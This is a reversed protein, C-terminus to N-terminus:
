LVTVREVRQKFYTYDEHKSLGAELNAILNSYFSENSLSVKKGKSKLYLRIFKSVSSFLFHGRVFDCVNHGISQAHQRVADEDVAGGLQQDLTNIHEAIKLECLV